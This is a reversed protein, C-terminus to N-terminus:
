DLQWYNIINATLRPIFYVNGLTQHEGNKWEFLITGCGEIRVISGDGFKVTGSVGTDLNSFMARAGTMHNSAVTDFIWRRSDRDGGDTLVAFIFEEVLEVHRVWTAVVAVVCALPVVPSALAVESVAPTVVLVSEATAVEEQVIGVEEALLLSVEDDQAV